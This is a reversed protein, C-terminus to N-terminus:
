PPDATGRDILRGPGGAELLFQEDWAAAIEEPSTLLRNDDTRTVAAPRRGQCKKGAFSRVLAGLERSSGARISAAVSHLRAETWRVKDAKVSVKIHCAAMDASRQVFGAPCLRGRLPPGGLRYDALRCGGAGLWCCGGLLCLCRSAQGAM